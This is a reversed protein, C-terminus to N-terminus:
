WCSHNSLIYKRVAPPQPDIHELSEIPHLGNTLLLRSLGSLFWERVAQSYSAIGTLQKYLTATVTVANRSRLIKTPPFILVKMM